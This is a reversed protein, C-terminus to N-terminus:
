THTYFANGALAPLTRVGIVALCPRLRAGGAYELSRHSGHLSVCCTLVCLEKALWWCAVGLRIITKRISLQNNFINITILNNNVVLNSIIITINNNNIRVIIIRNSGM